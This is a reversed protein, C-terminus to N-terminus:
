HLAGLKTKMWEYIGISTKDVFTKVNSELLYHIDILPENQPKHLWGFLQQRWIDLENLKYLGKLEFLIATNVQSEVVDLWPVTRKLNFDYQNEEIWIAELISKDSNSLEHKYKGWLNDAIIHSLYGLLFM